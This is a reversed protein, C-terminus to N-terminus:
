KADYWNDAVNSDVKLDVGLDCVNVMIEEVAKKIVDVENDPVELILEDHVTLILSAKSNNESLYKDVRVMAIKIIDAATGQIPTNLAIREGFSRINYNKDQLEPIYRRRNFATKVFGNQKAEEVIERMYKDINPFQAKYNDIYEKAADRSINLNRSLGYDSIGYVIGFNVAKAHSRELSTVEDYPTNFVESATKKHIDLEGKFGEIMKSEKSAAALVRLEIQSYDLDIWKYGDEVIFAKRIERGKDTRAPINQLNPDTSSIRGTATKIQNFTSRLRNDEDIDKIMGDIYTSKLKSDQRYELILKPLPHSDSLKELVEQDTSYGTKTKKIVPLNLKEFLIEGLQKPSNINFEGGALKYIEAEMLSLDKQFTKGAEILMDKDVKVGKFEMKALVTALPLEIDNLLDMMEYNELMELEKKYLKSIQVLASSLGKNLEDEDINEIKNKNEKLIDEYNLISSFHRSYVSGISDGNITPDLLYDALVVDFIYKKCLDERNNKILYYCDEKINAGIIDNVSEMASIASEINKSLFLKEGDYLGAIFPDTKQYNATYFFKFVINGEKLESTISSLDDVLEYKIDISDTNLDSNIFEKFELDRYIEQLNDENPSNIIFSDLEDVEVDRNITGLERSLYAMDKGDILKETTKNAKMNDINNYVDDLSGYENLLKTAGVQGIGKVGPIDDSSDGMIAKLDILSSVDLNYEEKIKEPTYITTDSIGRKTYIVKIEDSVLQLYDRDGTVLFIDADKEYKKSLSGALDDAEFGTKEYTKIGMENLLNKLITIQYSLEPPFKKRSGKYGDYLEHRFTPGKPDFLVAVYKPEYENILRNFMKIFGYIANTQIGKKNSLPRIAYFARNVLSSGDIILFKDMDDGTIIIDYILINKM